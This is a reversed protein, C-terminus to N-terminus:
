RIALSPQLGTESEILQAAAVAEARNTYPGIQVRFLENTPEIHARHSDLDSLEKNIHEALRTASEANRFAGFQLYAHPIGSGTIPTLVPPISATQRDNVTSLRPEPSQTTITSSPAAITAYNGNRIDDHTIAEVIVTDSGPAILGLKAAAVFSLDIIRNRHFPGRDNIRVIISQGTTPRTVKAYSPLPLTPHAATMAYMDYTEGNATKRGHFQKGYWSANGTQTFPKDASHPTYSQGLVTYPRMNAPAHREIRPTANPIAHLNKPLQAGPGDNQYYGGSSSQTTKPGGSCGTLLALTFLSIWLPTIYRSTM